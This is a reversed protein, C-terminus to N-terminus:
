ARKKNDYSYEKIAKKLRKITSESVNLRESLEKNTLTPNNIIYNYQEEKKNLFGRDQKRKEAVKKNHRKYKDKKSKEIDRITYNCKLEKLDDETFGLKKAICLNSYFYVKKNVLEILRELEGNDLKHTLEKHLARCKALIVDDEYCKLKLLCIYIHFFTRTRGKLDSKHLDLYTELDKIRNTSLKKIGDAGLKKYLDFENNCRILTTKKSNISTKHRINENHNVEKKKVERIRKNTENTKISIPKTPKDWGYKNIFDNIEIIEEETCPIFNEEDRKKICKSVISKDVSNLIEEYDNYTFKDNNGYVSKYIKTQRPIEKVNFSTPFRMLRNYNICNGDANFINILYQTTIKHKNRLITSDVGYKGRYINETENLVFYLHLGRGSPIIYSPYFYEVDRSTFLDFVNVSKNNKKYLFTYKRLLLEELENYSLKTLDIDEDEDVVNDIDVFYSNSIKVLNNKFSSFWKLKFFINPTFFFNYNIDNALRSFLYWLPTTKKANILSIKFSEEYNHTEDDKDKLLIYMFCNNTGIEDCSNISYLDELFEKILLETETIKYTKKVNKYEEKIDKIKSDIYEYFNDM